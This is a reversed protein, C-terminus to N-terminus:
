CPIANIFNCGPPRAVSLAVLVLVQVCMYRIGKAAYMQARSGIVLRPNVQVLFWRVLFRGIARFASVENPLPCPAMGHFFLFVGEM